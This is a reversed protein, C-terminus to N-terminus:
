KVGTILNVDIKAIEDITDVASGMNIAFDTYSRGTYRQIQEHVRMVTTTPPRVNPMDFVTTYGGALAARTGHPIDEKHELGPERLHGHVEILGPLIYKNRFDFTHETIKPFGEEISEIKGNAIHLTGQIIQDPLVISGILTSSM